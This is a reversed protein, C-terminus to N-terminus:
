LITSMYVVGMPETEEFYRKRKSQLLFLIMFIVNAKSIFSQIIYLHNLVLFCWTYNCDEKKCHLTISHMLEYVFVTTSM